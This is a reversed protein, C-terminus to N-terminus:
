TTSLGNKTLRGLLAEAVERRPGLHAGLRWQIGSHRRAYEEVKDRLKRLLDGQFLLHPQVIIGAPHRAVVRELVPEVRPEAMALFAVGHDAVGVLEAVRSAYRHMSASAEEDLSGRGVMVLTTEGLAMEQAATANPVVASERVCQASLEILREHCELPEVQSFQVDPYRKSVEAVKAPIDRKAHGAAFLLLPSVVIRSCRRAVLQDVGAPIDPSAIELFAGEVPVGPLLRVVHDYTAWYERLGTEDRTGHGVLLVGTTDVDEGHGYDTQLHTM